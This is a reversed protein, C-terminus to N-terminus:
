SDVQYYLRGTGLASLKVVKMHQNDSYGPLRLRAAYGPRYLSLKIKVKVIESVSRHM